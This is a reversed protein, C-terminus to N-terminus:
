YGHRMHVPTKHYDILGDLDGRLNMYQKPTIDEKELDCADLWEMAEQFHGITWNEPDDIIADLHDVNLEYSM